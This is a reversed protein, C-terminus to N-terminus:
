LDFEKLVDIVMQHTVNPDDNFQEISRWGRDNLAMLLGRNGMSRTKCMAGRMCFKVAKVDDLSVIFNEEDRAYVRRTWNEEKAILESPKM